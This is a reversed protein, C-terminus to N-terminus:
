GVRITNRRTKSSIKNPARGSASLAAVSTAPTAAASGDAARATIREVKTSGYATITSDSVSIAVEPVGTAWM